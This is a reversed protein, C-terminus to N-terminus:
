VCVFVTYLNGERLLFNFAFLQNLTTSDATTNVLLYTFKMLKNMLKNQTLYVSVTLSQLVSKMGKSKVINAGGGDNQFM